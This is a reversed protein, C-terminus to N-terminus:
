SQSFSVKKGIDIDEGGKVVMRSKVEGGVGNFLLEIKYSDSLLEDDNLVDYYVKM